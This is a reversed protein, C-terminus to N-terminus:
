SEKLSDNYKNRLKNNIYIAKKIASIRKKIQSIEFSPTKQFAHVMFGLRNDHGPVDM